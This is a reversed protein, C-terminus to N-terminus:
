GNEVEDPLLLTLRRWVGSATTPWLTANTSSAECLCLCTDADLVQLTHSAPEGQPTRWEVTVTWRRWPGSVLGAVLGPLPRDSDHVALTEAAAKRDSANGSLLDALLEGTLHLPESGSTPRPGLRTVRAIVAPLLTPHLAILERDGDPLDLLLAAEGRGVWGDGAKRTGRDDILGIRLRCLSGTVARLGPVLARHPENRTIAGSDVLATLQPDATDDGNVWSVLRDFTPQDLRVRGSDANFVFSM